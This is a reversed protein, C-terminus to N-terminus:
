AGWGPGTNQRPAECPLCSEGPCPAARGRMGPRGMASDLPWQRRESILDYATTTLGADRASGATRATLSRV